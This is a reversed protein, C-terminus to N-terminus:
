SAVGLEDRLRIMGDRLRTKVTGLPIQLREAVESQSLGGYYALSIAQRQLQTLRSMAKEVREHELRVEVTESVEDYAVALDRIGIKTDRDRSAQSSRIRDVARRHAMTLIWTSAGGRQVEYRTASQWIELFIEQTVEESQAPDVLLRRVLGLVRPAMQDYLEGFAAEDGRAVRGLLQEKSEPVTSELDFDFDATMLVLM